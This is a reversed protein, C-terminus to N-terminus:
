VCLCFEDDRTCTIKLLNCKIMRKGYIHLQEIQYLSFIVKSFTILNGEDPVEHSYHKKQIVGALKM